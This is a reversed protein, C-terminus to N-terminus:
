KGGKSDKTLNLAQRLVNVCNEHYILLAKQQIPALRDYRDHQYEGIAAEVESKPIYHESILAKIKDRLPMVVEYCWQCQAPEPDGESDTEAYTGYGDCSPPCHTRPLVEEIWNDVSSDPLKNLKSKVERMKEEVQSLEKDLPSDSM